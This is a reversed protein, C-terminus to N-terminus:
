GTTTRRSVAGVRWAVLLLVVDIVVGIVSSWLAVVVLVLSALSVWWLTTPWGPRGIWTVLATAVFAVALVAWALGLARLVTPDSVTWGGALYEAPRDESARSFVDGTGALHALGHAALFIALARRARASSSRRTRPVTNIRTVTASPMPRITADAARVPM